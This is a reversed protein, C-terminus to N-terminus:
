CKSPRLPYRWRQWASPSGHGCRHYGETPGYQLAAAPRTALVRAVAAALRAVPFCEPAPLGGAFSIMAPQETVHLLDRIASSRIQRAGAALNDDWVTPM